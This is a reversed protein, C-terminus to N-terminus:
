HIELNPQLTGHSIVAEGESMLVKKEDREIYHEQEKRPDDLELKSSQDV